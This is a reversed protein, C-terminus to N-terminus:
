RYFNIYDEAHVHLYACLESKNGLKVLNENLIEQLRVPQEPAFATEPPEQTRYGLTSMRRWLYSSREESIAEVRKARMLLAGMSVKWKWKLMALREITVKELDHFIDARPMLLESAFINAQEEAMESEHQGCHMVVHGIEHALTFRLRDAPTRKNLFIVPPLHEFNRMTVGDIKVSRGFDAMIVICGSNEILQTLGLLPGTPVGWFERVANAAKEATIVNEGFYVPLNLSQHKTNQLMRDLHILYLNMMAQMSEKDHKGLSLRKRFLPHLSMPMGQLQYELKFFDEPVKLFESLKHVVEVSPVAEGKEIKSYFGQTLSTGLAVDKQTFHRYQRTLQLM